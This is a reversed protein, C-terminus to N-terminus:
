GELLKECQRSASFEEDTAVGSRHVDRRRGASWDYGYEAWGLRAAVSRKRFIIHDDFAVIQITTNITVAATATVRRTHLNRNLGDPM